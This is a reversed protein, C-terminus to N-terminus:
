ESGAEYSSFVLAGADEGQRWHMMLKGAQFSFSTVMQLTKLYRKEAAMYETPCIMRTMLSARALSIEGPGEGKGVRATYVNCAAKGGVRKGDFQLTFEFDQSVPEDRSFRTLAWNGALDDLSLRGQDETTIDVQGEEGLVIVNKVKQGPCCAADEAGAQVLDLEVRGELLNASRLQVRDGLPVTALSLVEGEPGYGM